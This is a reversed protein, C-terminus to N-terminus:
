RSAAAFVLLVAVLGMAFSVAAMIVRRNRSAPAPTLTIASVLTQLRGQAERVAEPAGRLDFIYMTAARGPEATVKVRVGLPACISEVRQPWAAAQDAPVWVPIRVVVAPKPPQTEM